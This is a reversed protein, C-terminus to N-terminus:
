ECWNKVKTGGFYPVALGEKILISDVPEGDVFVQAVIRFYKGRQVKTLQVDEAGDILELLRDRAKLALRKEKPCKGRKEPTDLGWIRLGLKKGFVPPLGKISITCTDGDYCRLFTVRGGLAPDIDGKVPLAICGLLLAIAALPASNARLADLWTIM